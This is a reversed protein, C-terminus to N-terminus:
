KARVRMSPDGQLHYWRQNSAIDTVGSHNETLYRQGAQLAEGLTGNQTAAVHYAVGRSFIAPPHWSILVTGGYYATTGIPAGSPDADGMLHAGANQPLLIGNLCAVDIWVPKVSAANRIQAIHPVAYTAGFSSWSTGDGHGLYTVWWAGENLAANFAM